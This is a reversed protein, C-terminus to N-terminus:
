KVGVYYLYVDELDASVQKGGVEEDVIRLVYDENMRLVKSICYQKQYKTLEECKIIREYVKGKLQQLLYEISGKIVVKGKNMIILEKAISEVDQMVHTAILIIKGQAVESIYNRLRIREYPDLGATPEDLVIIKPNNLLAQAFMLRQRMGGSYTKIKRMICNELNVQKILQDIEKTAQNKRMGKLTAMYYLFQKGTFNDYGEQNQPMFGILNRYEEKKISSVEKENWLLKGSSEKQLTTIISILTSKGAGNPGILGYVGDTLTFTIDDIAIVDGYRKVLQNINLQNM